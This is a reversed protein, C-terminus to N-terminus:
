ARSGAFPIAVGSAESASAGGAAHAWDADVWVMGGNERVQRQQVHFPYIRDHHDYAHLAHEDYVAASLTYLGRLLPLSRIRYEVTGAGEVEEITLGGTKTNPGNLHVHEGYHIAVGFLPRRVRERALYHIRVTAPEGTELVSQPQGRHDVMEVATIEVERSGWRRSPDVGAAATVADPGGEGRRQRDKRNAQELYADIVALSAGAARVRGRDLWIADQCVYRVLDLGHSVLIITKGRRMLDDIRDICKRQFAEDGVSLVEDTILIDPDSNIAIAFGLRVTMGSSYHKLPTDIFRDLEAFDVIAEFRRAIERRSFGLVSANLYVNERGTLDPHFGAGLELLAALRGRVRVAGATPRLIGAILKLMTSKGSGNEGVIGFSRGQEVAFSVDALAWFDETSRGRRFANVAFEQFSRHREHHLRFRKSVGQVEVAASV